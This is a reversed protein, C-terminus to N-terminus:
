VMGGALITGIGLFMVICCCCVIGWVKALKHDRSDSCIVFAMFTIVTSVIFVWLWMVAIAHYNM